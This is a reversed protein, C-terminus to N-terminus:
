SNTLANPTPDLRRKFNGCTDACCAAAKSNHRKQELHLLTSHVDTEQVQFSSTSTASPDQHKTSSNYAGHQYPKKSLPKRSQSSKHQTTGPGSTTGAHITECMYNLLPMLCWRAHLADPIKECGRHGTACACGTSYAAFKM